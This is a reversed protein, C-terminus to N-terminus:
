LQVAQIPGRRLMYLLRLDYDGMKLPQFDVFSGVEQLQSPGYREWLFKKSANSSYQSVMVDANTSSCRLATGMLWNMVEFEGLPM